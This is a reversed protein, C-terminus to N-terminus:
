YSNEKALGPIKRKDETTTKNNNQQTNTMKDKMTTKVKDNQRTNNYKINM